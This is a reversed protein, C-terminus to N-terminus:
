VPVNLNLPGNGHGITFPHVMAKSVFKKANSVAETTITGKVMQALLSASFVTGLGLMNRSQIKPGDVTNIKAGDYIVDTARNELHGGTVVVSIPGFSALAVAAEKMSNVDGVPRDTLFAAEAANVVLLTTKPFLAERIAPIVAHPVLDVGTKSRFGPELVLTRFRYAEVLSAILKASDPTRLAGIKVGHTEIDATISELQQAIFEFPVPYIAQIGTTNAAVLETAVGAGYCKWQQFTKLDGALGSIGTTDFPAISIVNKNM